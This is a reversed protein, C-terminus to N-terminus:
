QVARRLALYHRAFAEADKGLREATAALQAAREAPVGADTLLDYAASVSPSVGLARLEEHESM